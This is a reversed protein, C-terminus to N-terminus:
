RVDELYLGVDCALHRLSELKVRLVYDQPGKWERFRQPDVPELHCHLPRFDFGDWDAPRDTYITVRCRELTSAKAVRVLRALAFKCQNTYDPTRYACYLLHHLAM